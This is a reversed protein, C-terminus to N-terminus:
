TSDTSKVSLQIDFTQVAAPIGPYYDLTARITITIPSTTAEAPDTSQLTLVNDTLTLFSYTTPAISYSRPGCFTFGDGDGNTWSATVSALVLQTDAASNVYALM